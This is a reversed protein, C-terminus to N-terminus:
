SLYNILEATKHKIVDVTEGHSINFHTRVRKEGLTQEKM